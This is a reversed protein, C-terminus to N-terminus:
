TRSLVFLPSLTLLNMFTFLASAIFNLIIAVFYGDTTTDVGLITVLVALIILCLVSSAIGIMFKTLPLLKRSVEGSKGRTGKDSATPIKTSESLRKLIKFGAQIIFCALFLAQLAVQGLAILRVVGFGPLFFTYYFVLVTTVISLCIMYINFRRLNKDSLDQIRGGTKRGLMEQWYMLILTLAALGLVFQFLFVLQMIVEPVFTPIADRIRALFQDVGILFSFGMICALIKVVVKNRQGAASTHEANAGRKMLRNRYKSSYLFILARVCHQVAWISFIISTMSYVWFGPSQYLELWPSTQHVLAVNAPILIGDEFRCPLGRGDGCGIAQLALAPDRGHLRMIPIKNSVTAPNFAFRTFLDDTGTGDGFLQIGGIANAKILNRAAVTLDCSPTYFLAVKGELDDDISSCADLFFNSNQSDLLSHKVVTLPINNLETFSSSILPITYASDFVESDTEGQVNLTITM